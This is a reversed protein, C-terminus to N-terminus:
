RGEKSIGPYALADFGADNKVQNRALFHSLPKALVRALEVAECEDASVQAAGALALVTLGVGGLEQKLDGAPKAYIYDILKHIQEPNVECAQALEIAEEVMRLGRQPLSNAHEAGFAANTWEFTRAQRQDREVTVAPSAMTPRLYLPEIIWGNRAAVQRAGDGDHYLTWGYEPDNVRWAVPEVEVTAPTETRLSDKVVSNAPTEPRLAPGNSSASVTFTGFKGTPAPAAHPAPNRTVFQEAEPDRRLVLRLDAALEKRGARAGIKPPPKSEDVLEDIFQELRARAETAESM